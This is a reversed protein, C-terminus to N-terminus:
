SRALEIRALTAKLDLNNAIAEDILATLVPDNFSLWWRELIASQEASATAEPLDLAPPAPQTVACGSLTGAVIWAFVSRRM